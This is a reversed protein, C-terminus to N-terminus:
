AAPSDSGKTAKPLLFDMVEMGFQTFDAPDLDAAEQLTLSPATIRPLLTTTANVNMQVLDAINLGRLEGSKPRRVQVTEITKDGRKFPFDLTVTVFTPKNIDTDNM